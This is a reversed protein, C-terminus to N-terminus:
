IKITENEQQKLEEFINNWYRYGEKSEYWRFGFSVAESQSSVLYDNNTLRELAISKINEPLTNFYHEITQM